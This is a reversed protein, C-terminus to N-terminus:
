VLFLRAVLLSYFSVLSLSMMMSVFLTHFRFLQFCSWDLAWEVSRGVLLENVFSPVFKRFAPALFCSRYVPMNSPKYHCLWVSSVILCLSKEQKGVGLVHGKCEAVVCCWTCITCAGNFAALAPTDLLFAGRTGMGSTAVRVSDDSGHCDEVRRGFYWRGLHGEFFFFFFAGNNVPVFGM